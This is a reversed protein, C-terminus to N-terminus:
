VVIFDAASLVPKTVLLAFQIKGGVESGNSDYYLAGSEKNYIIRDYSDQAEGRNNVEFFLPNLAGKEINNFPGGGTSKLQMTDAATFDTIRDINRSSLRTSFVFTDAEYGGTLVDNGQAGNLTNASSNGKITNALSNGNGIAATGLLTLNEVNAYKTL